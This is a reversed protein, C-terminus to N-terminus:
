KIPRSVIWKLPKDIIAEAPDGYIKSCMAKHRGSRVFVKPKDWNKMIILIKSAKLQDGLGYLCRSM